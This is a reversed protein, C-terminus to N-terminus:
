VVLEVSRDVCVVVGVEPGVGQGILWRAWRNSVEDLEVYSLGGLGDDVARESGAREVQVAFADVFSVSEAVPGDDFGGLVRGWEGSGLVTLYGVPTEPAGTVQELVRILREGLERATDRDFLDAAYEVSVRLGGDPEPGAAIYLDFKAVATPAPLATCEVGPLGVGSFGGDHEWGISTQFLPHRALSRTPSLAEVVQEFPVHTHDFDELDQ